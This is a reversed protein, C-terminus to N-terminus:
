NLRFTIPLTFKVRVAKGDQMGPTWKPMSNVVRLAEADLDDHVKQVVHANSISGDPEIIFNVLVRGFKGAKYAAEPYHINQSLYTMMAEMGGPYEPMKEVVDFAEPEVSGVAVNRIFETDKGDESSFTGTATNDGSSVANKTTILIVGNKGEEGYLDISAKDKLVDIHDITKPDLSQMEEMSSRKGDILVLPNELDGKMDEAVGRINIPATAATDAKVEITKGSVNVKGAKKGKKMLKKQPEQYIYDTVTEANLALVTGLVPLLALLKLWSKGYSKKNNLMMNIRNKLTSHTIGNAISYGGTVVAKQILLYLYQRMNIGQSLVAADAEYEHIARLDQRLMWIAPNFWQLATLTDVLLVDLSHRQRIHAREHAMIAQDQQKFDSVNLVIYRMWSFPAVPKDTVAIVTGDDQPHRQSRMILRVVQAVSWVVHGVVVFVGLFFVVVVVKQWWPQSPEVITALPQGIAISSKVPLVVTHHFTLVCFPLVFSAVATILLVVRNLRHFTDRSLLLRYFLYFIAILVAVKLDYKLFEMM